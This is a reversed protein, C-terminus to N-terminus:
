KETDKHTHNKKRPASLGHTRCFKTVASYGVGYREAITKRSVGEEVVERRIRDLDDLPIKRLGTYKVRNSPDICAAVRPYACEFQSAIRELSMGERNLQRITPGHESEFERQRRNELAGPPRVINHKYLYSTVHHKNCDYLKCLEAYTHGQEIALRVVNSDSDPIPNFM